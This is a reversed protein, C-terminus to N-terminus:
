SSAKHDNFIHKAAAAANKDSMHPNSKKVIKHVDAASKEHLPSHYSTGKQGGHQYVHEHHHNTVKGGGAGHYSQGGHNRNVHVGSEHEGDFHHGPLHGHDRHHYDGSASKAKIDHSNMVENSRHHDARKSHYNDNLEESLVDSVISILTKSFNTYTKM